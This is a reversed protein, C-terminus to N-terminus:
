IEVNSASCSVDDLAPLLPVDKQGPGGAGDGVDKSGGDKTAGGNDDIEEGPDDGTTTELAETGEADVEPATVAEDADGASVLVGSVIPAAEHRPLISRPEM